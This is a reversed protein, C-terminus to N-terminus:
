ALLRLTANFMAKSVEMATINAEYARSAALANVYEIAMDIDAYKVHGSGDADPHRPDYVRRVAPDQRIKVHVGPRTRDHMQGSLFVAFRRKPPELQGRENRTSNLNAMNFAIADLRARQAELASSGIDLATFM